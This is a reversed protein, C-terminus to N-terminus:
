KFRLKNGFHARVIKLARWLQNKVTSPSVGMEDAIENRNMGKFYALEFVKSSQPAINSITSSIESQLRRMDMDSEISITEESLAIIKLIRQRNSDNRIKNLCRNKISTYLFAKLSSSVNIYLEKEYFEAFYDQVLDQADSQSGLISAAYVTLRVRYQTYCEEFAEVNGLKLADLLSIDNNGDFM